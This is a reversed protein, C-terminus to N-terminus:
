YNVGYFEPSDFLYVKSYPPPEVYRVPWPLPPSGGFLHSDLSGNPMFEYVLLFESNDRQHCWGILQVLNKHRMKSIIKVESLYERRGQRSGKFIKKVAVTKDAGPLHGKFVAGFGGQGLKRHMSFNDTAMSLYGYSFRRPQPSAERNLDTYISALKMVANQHKKNKDRGSRALSILFIAIIAIVFVTVWAILVAVLSMNIAKEDEAMNMQDNNFGISGNQPEVNAM